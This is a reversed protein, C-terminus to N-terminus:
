HSSLKSKVVKSKETTNVNQVEEVEEEKEIEEVENRLEEKIDGGEDEEVQVM